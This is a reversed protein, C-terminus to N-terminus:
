DNERVGKRNIGLLKRAIIIASVSGILILITLIFATIGISGLSEIVQKNDGLRCGMTFLLVILMVTQVKGTWNIKLDKKKLYSGFLCGIFCIGIYLALLKM